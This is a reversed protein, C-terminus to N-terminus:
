CPAVRHRARDRRAGQARRGAGPRPRADAASPRTPARVPEGRSIERFLSLTEESPTLGLAALASACGGSSAYRRPAIAPRRSSACLARNIEEDAPDHACCSRGAVRAGCRQRAAARSGSVTCPPGSRMAITPCCSPPSARTALRRGRAARRRDRRPAAPRAGGRRSAARDGRPWGLAKRAYHAAKHLNAVGAKAGLHPWLAEVVEDRTLRHEPRCRSCSSWTRPEVTSGPRLRGGPACGGLGRVARAAPCGLTADARDDWACLGM